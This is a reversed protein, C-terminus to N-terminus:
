NKHGSCGSCSNCDIGCGACKGSKKAKILHRFAFGMLSLVILSIVITAINTVVWSIM